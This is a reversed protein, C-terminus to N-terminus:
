ILRLEGESLLKYSNKGGTISMTMTAEILKLAITKKLQDFTGKDSQIIKVAEALYTEISAGGRESIKAQDDKCGGFDYAGFESKEGAIGGALFTFRDADTRDCSDLDCM